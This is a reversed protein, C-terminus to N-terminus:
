STATARTCSSTTWPWARCARVTSSGRVGAISRNVPDERVVKVPADKPLNGVLSQWTRGGDRTALVYPAFVDTRHGDLSVYATRADHHSAEIRSVYLGAPTPLNRTLDTWTTGGDPTIWVKGDDTGVWITGARVPSESLTVITCHTEAGSGASVMKKPDQTTLDPSVRTWRDGREELRFLHNGGMWLVSPDHPSIQFPTNWNFRFQPEGEEATPRLFRQRGGARDMRVLNGRQSEFYVIDPDTPDAAVHFGDGGGLCEWHDNLIGDRTPADFWSDIEYLTRSPGGWTQNDQLGGYVRYPVAMDVAVNYFEGTALNNLFDWHKARDHSVYAGGDTGLIVLNGDPSLQLDHCDPHLNRAGRARFTHGGDDSVWLDTGLVYVRSEDDPEVRIQAFYFMRPTYPSLREWSDGGDASRFVGGTRSKEEFSDIQGGEDSEVLAFVVRPDKRYVDLGIRGTAAPLGNTLKRWTRGGDRSRFIGGSTGGSTYSWPTRLRAYMAAYLVDPNSPDMVLDVAGTRADAELVHQWTRGGDTTKFVGREANTGWLRGLAAVFAVNSDAPHTVVRAINHTAELGLHQWTSGGDLSRYMGNGWSSSNRSNAEGTGIWVVNPNRQWVAISGISAVPQDDFLAKWTTGFNETKFAGGTGYGVYFTAPSGEVLAISSVRGGCNAPGISRWSLTKLHRPEPTTPRAARSQALAVPLPALIFGALALAVLSTRAM